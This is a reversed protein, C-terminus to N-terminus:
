RGLTAQAAAGLSLAITAVIVVVAVAAGAGLGPLPEGHRMSAETRAWAIWGWVAALAGAVGLFAATGWRAWPAVPVDFTLLAGALALLAVATRIWALFTRENALTFRPDPEVGERYIWGPV